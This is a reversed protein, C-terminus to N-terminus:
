NSPKGAGVWVYSGQRVVVPATGTLDVLTSPEGGSLRGADVIVDVLAGFTREIADADELPAEGSRNVSTSLLPEGLAEIAARVFACAPIRLAITGGAWAPCRPGSRFIATLPAPWISEFAGRTACGWGDIFSEVRAVSDALYLFRRGAPARKMESIREHGERSSIPTSLGYLTDTPLVAVGGASLAGVLLKGADSHDSRIRIM